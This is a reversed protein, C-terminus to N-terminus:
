VDCARSAVADQDRFNMQNGMRIIKIGFLSSAFLRAHLAGAICLKLYKHRRKIIM